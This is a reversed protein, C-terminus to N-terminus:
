RRHVRPTFSALPIEAVQKGNRDLELLRLPFQQNTVLTHGNPLREAAIPQVISAEWVVKGDQDYEMVKNQFPVPLIVHGNALIDNAFGSVGLMQFRKLERGQADLHVCQGTNLVCVFLGERVKRASMLDNPRNIVYVEHGDRAVELIQGRTVIFTNGNPLRRAHMPLNNLQKQWVVEGRLNRETVRRANYEAVLVRDGPLAQADQPGVLGSIQWRVKGDRDVEVVSATQPQVLLTYGYQIGASFSGRRVAVNVAGGHQKWWAAWNDRRRGRDDGPPEAPAGDGAVQRLYEEVPASREQPLEGLLAILVPVAEREGAQALALGVQLRVQADEDRLLRLLADRHEGAPGRSLAVAAAARRAPVKDALAKVVAPNPQGDPWALINLAAQAEGSLYEDDAYPIYAILAEAGAAPKRLALLRPVVPPLPVNRDNELEALVARARQSIELDPDNVAQRLMPLVLAGMAKIEVTAKQRVEFSEDGLKAILAQAKERDAETLTRKRLEALLDPGSVGQWWAEWAKRCAARAAADEAFPVAPARDGALENLFEHAQRAQEPGLDTLLAALVPVARGERAQALAIGARLRVSPKPDDLLKVLKARPEALGDQCLVDVATARRLAVPDELAKLLAPDAVGNRYAVACLTQRVEELVREDEALPLYALLTEATGAPRRQALLRAAAAPVAGPNTEIARLCRQALAFAVANDPDKVLQRLVPLAPTGIGVLEGCAKERDAAAPAGLQEALDSLRDAPAAGAARLRFFALLGAGDTGVGADKLLAEDALGAPEARAPGAWALALVCLM